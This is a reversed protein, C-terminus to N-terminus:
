FAEALLLRRAMQVIDHPTFPKGIRATARYREPLVSRDYGTVFMLPVTRRSLADALEFSQEGELNVDLVALDIPESALALGQSLSGVPGVVIADQDAVLQRIDSAIFYEDELVLIRKGALCGAM